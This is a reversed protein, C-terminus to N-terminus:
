EDPVPYCGLIMRYPRGAAPGEPTRVPSTYKRVVASFLERVTRAFISRQEASEFRFEADLSLVGLARGADGREALVEALEREARAQLWLMRAATVGDGVASTPALAGLVRSALVYSEATAAYVTEVINGARREEVRRLFGHESLRGVHYNVKQPTLRLRRAIDAASGPERAAEVIRLRLPHLLLEARERDTVIEVEQGPAM